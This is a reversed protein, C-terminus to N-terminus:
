KRMGIDVENAKINGGATIASPNGRTTIDLSSITNKKM